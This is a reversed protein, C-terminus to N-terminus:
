LPIHFRFFFIQEMPSCEGALMVAPSCGSFMQSSSVSECVDDAVSFAFFEYARSLHPFWSLVYETGESAQLDNTGVEYRQLTRRISAGVALNINSRQVLVFLQAVTDHSLAKETAAVLDDCTTGEENM